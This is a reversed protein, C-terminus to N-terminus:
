GDSWKKKFCLFRNKKTRKKGNKTIENMLVDAEKHTNSFVPIFLLNLSSLTTNPMRWILEFLFSFSADNECVVTKKRENRKQMKKQFHEFRFKNSLVMYRRRESGNNRNKQMKKTTQESFFLVFLRWLYNSLHIFNAKKENNLFRKKKEKSSLTNAFNRVANKDM